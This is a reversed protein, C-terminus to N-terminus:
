NCVTGHYKKRWTVLGILGTGLLLITAPEPVVEVSGPAILAPVPFSAFALEPGLFGATPLLTSTGSSSAVFDLSFMGITIGAPVLAFPAVLSGMGVAGIGGLFGAPPPTGLPTLPSGPGVIAATVADFTFIPATGALAGATPAGPFVGPGLSLVSGADNFGVDMITTDFVAVGDGTYVVDITFASGSPNSTASIGWVSSAVVSPWRRAPSGTFRSASTSPLYTICKRSRREPAGAATGPTASCLALIAAMGVGRERSERSRSRQAVGFDSVPWVLGGYLDSM